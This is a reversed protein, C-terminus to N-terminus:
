YKGLTNSSFDLGNLHVVLLEGRAVWTVVDAEVDLVYGDLFDTTTINGTIGLIVRWLAGVREISLDDDQVVWALNASAVSWHEIAVSGVDGAFERFQQLLNITTSTFGDFVVGLKDLGAISSDDLHNRRLGHTNLGEGVVWWEASKSDPLIPRTSM